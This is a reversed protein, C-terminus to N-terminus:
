EGVFPSKWRGPDWFHLEDEFLTPLGDRSLARKIEVFIWDAEKQLRWRTPTGSYTRVYQATIGFAMMLSIKYISEETSTSWRGDISAGRLSTPHSGRDSLVRYFDTYAETEEFEDSVREKEDKRFSHLADPQDQLPKTILDENTERAEERTQAFKEAAQEQNRNLGRIVLYAEYLYRSRGRAANYQHFKLLYHVSKLANVVPQILLHQFLRGDDTDEGGTRNNFNYLEELNDAVTLLTWALDQNPHSPSYRESSWNAEGMVEPFDLYSKM